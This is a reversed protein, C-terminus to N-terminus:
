VQVVSDDGGYENPVYADAYWDNEWEGDALLYRFRYGRGIRLTVRAAHAGGEGRDLPTATSSWDNLDGCVHAAAGNVEPPLEFTVTCTGDGNSQKRMTRRAEWEGPADGIVLDVFPDRDNALATM